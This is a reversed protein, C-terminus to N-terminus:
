YGGRVRWNVQETDYEAVDELDMLNQYLLTYAMDKADIIYDVTMALTVDAAIPSLAINFLTEKVEMSTVRVPLLRQPGWQFLVPYASAPVAGKTGKELDDRYADIVASGPYLLLELAALQAYLGLGAQDPQNKKTKAVMRDVAQLRVTTNITQEPAGILDKGQKSKYARPKLSRSLEQPNYQFAIRSIAQQSEPDYSILAGKLLRVANQFTPARNLPAGTDQDIPYSPTTKTAELDGTYVQPTTANPAPALQVKTTNSGNAAM